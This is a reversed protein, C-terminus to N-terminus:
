LALAIVEVPMAPLKNVVFLVLSKVKARKDRNNDTDILIDAFHWHIEMKRIRWSPNQVSRLLSLRISTEKLSLWTFGSIMSHVEINQMMWWWLKACHGLINTRIARMIFCNEFMEVVLQSIMLKLCLLM